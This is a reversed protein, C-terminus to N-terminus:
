RSEHNTTIGYEIDSIKIPELIIRLIKTELILLEGEQEQIISM